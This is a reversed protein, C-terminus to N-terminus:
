AMLRSFVLLRICSTSCIHARHPVFTHVIHLVIVELVAPTLSHSLSLSRPAPSRPPPPPRSPPLSPLLLPTDPPCGNTRCVALQADQDGERWESTRIVAHAREGAVGQYAERATTAGEFVTGQSGVGRFFLGCRVFVHVFCPTLRALRDLSPFTRVRRSALVPAQNAIGSCTACAVRRICTSARNREAPDAPMAHHVVARFLLYVAVWVTMAAGNDYRWELM